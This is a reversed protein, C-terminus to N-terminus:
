KGPAETVLILKEDPESRTRGVLRPSHGAGQDESEQEGSGGAGRYGPRRRSRRDRQRPAPDFGNGEFPFGHRLVIRAADRRGRRARPPELDLRSSECAGVTTWPGDTGLDHQRDPKTGIGLERDRVVDGVEAFIRCAEGLMQGTELDGLAEHQDHEIRAADVSMVQERVGHVFARVAFREHGIQDRDELLVQEGASRGTTTADDSDAEASPRGDVELDIVRVREIGREGHIRVRDVQAREVARVERTRVRASRLARRRTSQADQM